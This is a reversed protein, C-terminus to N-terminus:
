RNALVIVQWVFYAIALLVSVSGCIIGAIAMGSGGMTGNSQRVQRQGIASLVIAVIGPIFGLGCLCVFPIAVIGCIMGSLALGNTKKAEPVGQPANAYGPPPPLPPPVPAAWGNADPSQSSTPPSPPPPPPTGYVPPPVNGPGPEPLPGPPPPPPPPPPASGPPAFEGPQEDPLLPPGTPPGQSDRDNTEDSM